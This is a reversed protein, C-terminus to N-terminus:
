IIKTDAKESVWPLCSIKQTENRIEDEFNKVTLKAYEELNCKDMVASKKGLKFAIEQIKFGTVSDGEVIKIVDSILYSV